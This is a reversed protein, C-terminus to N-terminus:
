DPQVQATANESETESSVIEKILHDKLTITGDKAVDFVYTAIQIANQSGEWSRYYRLEVTAEGPALGGVEFSYTGGGGVIQEDTQNESQDAQYTSEGVSVIGETYQEVAWEYGTTPNGPLQIMYSKSQQKACAAFGVAICLAMAATFVHASKKM